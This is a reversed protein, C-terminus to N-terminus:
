VGLSPFPPASSDLRRKKEGSDRQEGKATFKGQGSSSYQNPQGEIGLNTNWIRLGVLPLKLFVQRRRAVVGASESQGALEEGRGKRGRM